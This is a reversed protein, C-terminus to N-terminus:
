DVVEKSLEVFPPVVAVFLTGEGCGALCSSAVEEDCVLAELLDEAKGGVIESLVECGVKDGLGDAESIRIREFFDDAIGGAFAGGLTHAVGNDSKELRRGVIQALNFSRWDELKEM